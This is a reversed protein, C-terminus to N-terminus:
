YNVIIMYVLEVFLYTVYTKPTMIQIISLLNKKM